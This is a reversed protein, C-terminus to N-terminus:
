RDGSFHPPRRELFANRGEAFDASALLQTQADLEDDLLDEISDHRTSFIRKTAGIALPAAEALSQAVEMARLGVKDADAVEDVLGITLGDDGTIVERLLLLRKARNAGVRAPLTWLIGADGILGLNGFSCCLKCDRSAVVYDCAAALSLGSGYALGEIAAIVPKPGRVIAIVIEHM